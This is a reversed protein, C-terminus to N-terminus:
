GRVGPSIRRAARARERTSQRTRQGAYSFATDRITHEPRAGGKRDGCPEFGRERMFREKERQSSHWRGSADSYRPTAFLDTHVTSWRDFVIRREGGCSGCPPVQAPDVMADAERAGCALCRLDHRVSM